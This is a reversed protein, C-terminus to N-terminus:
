EMDDAKERSQNGTHFSARPHASPKSVAKWRKQPLWVSVATSAVLKELSSRWAHPAEGSLAWVANGWPFVMWTHKKLVVLSPWPLSWSEKGSVPVEFAVGWHSQWCNSKPFESGKAQEPGVIWEQYCGLNISCAHSVCMCPCVEGQVQNLVRSKYLPVEEAVCVLIVKSDRKPHIKILFSM